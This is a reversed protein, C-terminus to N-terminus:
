WKILKIELLEIRLEKLCPDHKIKNVMTSQISLVCDPMYYTWLVYKFSHITQLSIYQSLIKFEWTSSLENCKEGKGFTWYLLRTIRVCFIKIEELFVFHAM